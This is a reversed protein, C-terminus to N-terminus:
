FGNFYNEISKIMSGEFDFNRGTEMAFKIAEYLILNISGLSRYKIDVGSCIYYLCKNDYVFLASSIAESENIASLQFGSSHKEIDEILLEFDKIDIGIKKKSQNLTTEVLKFLLKADFGKKIEMKQSLCLKIRRKIDPSFKKHVEDINANLIKYTFRIKTEFGYWILPLFDYFDPSFNQLFIDSNPIEKLLLSLIERNNKRQQYESKNVDSIILPGLFQTFCPSALIKLFMKTKKSYPWVGYIKNNKLCVVADWGKVGAVRDLWWDQFFIPASPTDEIFKKYLLKNHESYM